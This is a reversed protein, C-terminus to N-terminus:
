TLREGDVLRDGAAAIRLLLALPYRSVTTAAGAIGDFSCRAASM